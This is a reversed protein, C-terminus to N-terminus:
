AEDYLSVELGIHKGDEFFDPYSKSIAECGLIDGGLISLAVSCAMVIRHDKWGYLVETPKHYSGHIVMEDEYVDIICGMKACESQMALMRDSEKLKLRAAHYIRSTGKSFMALICLIPGLDPCNALDIDCSTLESKYIRYGDQIEEIKTGFDKLISLIQKDGQLSDHRMGLIDLDHHIAALVGFFAFQSFDGEVYTDHAIYRQNGPISLTMDDIFYAEIGFEELMQLTLDIYSRSEFKGTITIMSDHKLLPLTFLLGSIFQSSVNGPLTYSGGELAGEIIIKEEDQYFYKGKETFIDQYIAQPRKLLRNKGTFTIKQNTLSFLPIMFRLTSGSENCEIHTDNISNFDKIGHIILSDEECVIHAGLKRMADITTQIDISYAIHDIRSVGDALSACIIARHAMSKSPPIHVSGKCISPAIHAKM